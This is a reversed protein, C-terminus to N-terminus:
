APGAPAELSSDSLRSSLAREPSDSQADSPPPDVRSPNRMPGWMLSGAWALAAGLLPMGLLMAVQARLPASLFTEEDFRGDNWLLVAPGVIAVCAVAKGLISRRRVLPGGVVLAPLFPMGQGAFLLMGPLFSLRLLRRWGSLRRAATAAGVGAGLVGALAIIFTTGVWSFEPSTSLLRMWMRAAVGWAMGLGLGALTAHLVPHTGAIRM